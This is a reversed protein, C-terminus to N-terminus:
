KDDLSTWCSLMTGDNLIISCLIEPVLVFVCFCVCVLFPVGHKSGCCLFNRGLGSMNGGFLVFLLLPKLRFKKLLVHVKSHFRGNHMQFNGNYFNNLVSSPM